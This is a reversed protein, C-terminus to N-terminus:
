KRQRRSRTPRSAWPSFAEIVEQKQAQQRGIVLDEATNYLLAAAAVGWDIKDFHRYILELKYVATPDLDHQGSILLTPAAEKSVAKMFKKNRNQVYAPLGKYIADIADGGESLIDMIKAIPAANASWAFGIKPAEKMGPTPATRSLWGPRSQSYRIAKVQPPKAVDGPRKIPFPLVPVIEIRDPPRVPFPLPALGNVQWWNLRQSLSMDQEIPDRDAIPRNPIPIPVPAAPRTQGPLPAAIAIAKARVMEMTRVWPSGHVYTSMRAPRALGNNWGATQVWRQAPLGDYHTFPLFINPGLDKFWFRENPRTVLYFHYNNLSVNPTGCAFGSQGLRDLTQGCDTLVSWGATHRPGITPNQFDWDGRYFQIAFEAAIGVFLGGTLARRPDRMAAAKVAAAFRQQRTKYM